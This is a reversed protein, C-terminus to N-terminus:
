YSLDDGERKQDPIVEHPIKEGKGNFVAIDNYSQFPYATIVMVRGYFHNLDQISPQLVGSPHSHSVGMVSLDMPLMMNSFGSFGRGHTALPPILIESMSIQDKEAKGRLLLITERPYMDLASTLISDAVSKEFRVLGIM